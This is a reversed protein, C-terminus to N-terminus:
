LATGQPAAPAVIRLPSAANGLQHDAGGGASAAPLASLHAAMLRTDAAPFANGYTRQM